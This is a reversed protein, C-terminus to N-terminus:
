KNRRKLDLGAVVMLVALVAIVAPMVYNTEVGTNPVKVDSKKTEDAKKTDEPKQTDDSKKDEPAPVAKVAFKAVVTSNKEGMTVTTQASTADAIVADGEAVTWGAFEYSDSAPIASVTIQTGAAGGKASAETTGMANSTVTLAPQITLTGEVLTVDYNGEEDWTAFTTYEGLDEGEVRDFKVDLEKLLEEQNEMVDGDATLLTCSFEPDDEGYIKTADNMVLQAEVQLVVHKAGKVTIDLNKNASVWEPITVTLDYGNSNAKHGSEDGSCTVTDLIADVEDQTLLGTGEEGNVLYEVHKRHDVEDGYYSEIDVLSFKVDAREITFSGEVSAYDYTTDGWYVAKVTYEGAETPAYPSLTITEGNFTTGSYLYTVYADDIVNGDADYVTGTVPQEEGNYVTDRHGDVFGDLAISTEVRNIAYARFLPTVRYNTSRVVVTQSYVGPETPAAENIMANLDAYASDYTLVKLYPKGAYTTGAFTVTVEASQGQPLVSTVIGYNFVDAEAPSLTKDEMEQSFSLSMSESDKRIYLYGMGLSTKYNDSTTVAAVLYVGANSPTGFLSITSGNLGLKELVSVVEQM